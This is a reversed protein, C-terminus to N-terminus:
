LPEDDRHQVLQQRSVTALAVHRARLPFKAAPFFPPMGADVARAVIPAATEEGLVWDRWGPDGYSMMGLCIRSVKLGTTGLRVYDVPGNQGSRDAATSASPCPGTASGTGSRCRSRRTGSRWSM